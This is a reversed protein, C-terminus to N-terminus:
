KDANGVNVIAGVSERLEKEQLDVSDSDETISIASLFLQYGLDKKGPM